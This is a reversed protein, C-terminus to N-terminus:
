FIIFILALSYGNHACDTLYLPDSLISDDFQKLGLQPIAVEAVPFGSVVVAVDFGVDEGL